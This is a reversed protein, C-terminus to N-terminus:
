VCERGGLGDIIDQSSQWGERVVQREDHIAIWNVQVQQRLVEKGLVPNRKVDALYDLQGILIRHGFSMAM